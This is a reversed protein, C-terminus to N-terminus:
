WRLLNTIPINTGNSLLGGTTEFLNLRRGLQRLVSSQFIGGPMGLFGQGAWDMLVRTTNRRFRNVTVRQIGSFYKWFAEPGLRDLMQIFRSNIVGSYNIFNETIDKWLVKEDVGTAKGHFYLAARFHFDSEQTVQVIFQGLKSRRTLFATQVVKNILTNEGVVDGLKENVKKLIRGSDEQLNIDETISQYMGRDMLPKLPNDRMGALVDALDKEYKRKTSDKSSMILRELKHQEVELKKWNVLARRSLILYEISKKLPIGAYWLFKANSKINGLVTSPLKVVVNGKLSGMVEKVYQEVIRVKRKAGPSVSSMIGAETVSMEDYGLLQKLLDKRIYMSRLEKTSPGFKPFETKGAKKMKAIKADYKKRLIRTNKEIIYEKADPPLLAWIEEGETKVGFKGETFLKAGDKSKMLQRREEDSMQFEKAMVHLYMFDNEKFVGGKSSREESDKFIIDILERNNGDTMAQTHMQGFSRALLETGRTEESLYEEMEQRSFGYRFDTIHGEADYVPSLNGYSGRKNYRAIMESRLDIFKKFGDADTLEPHNLGVKQSMLLGPVSIRQLGTAGDVRAALAVNDSAFVGFRGGDIDIENSGLERVMRYGLAELKKRDRVTAIELGKDKDTPAKVQGKVLEQALGSEKWDQKTAEQVGISLTLFNDVGDSDLDILESLLEKDSADELVLLSALRDVPGIIKRYDYKVDGANSLMGFESDITVEGDIAYGIAMDTGFLRAINESNTRLGTGGAMHEAMLESQEVLFDGLYELGKVNGAIKRVEADAKKIESALKKPDKLLEQLWKADLGLAQVDARLLVSGLVKNYKNNKRSYIDIKSFGDKLQSLTGKYNQERMRDIHSRFQMTMNTITQLTKRGSVFDAMLSRVFGDETLGVQYMIKSVMVDIGKADKSMRSLQMALRLKPVTKVAWWVRRLGGAKRAVKASDEMDELLKILKENGKPDDAILGLKEFLGDVLKKMKKDTFKTAKDVANAVSQDMKGLTAGAAKQGYKDQVGAMAVVLKATEEELTKGKLKRSKLAFLMKYVTDTIVRLMQDYWTENEQKAKKRPGVDIKGIADMVSKNTTALALFEQLRRYADMRSGDSRVGEFMYDYLEQAKKKEAESYPGGEVPLLSEITVREKAIKYIERARMKLTSGLVGSMNNFIWDLSAHVVEHAMTEQNSMNLRNGASAKGRSTLLSITYAGPEPNFEGIPEMLEDVTSKTARADLTRVKKSVKSLTGVVLKLWKSHEVDVEEPRNEADLEVMKQFIDEVKGGEMDMDLFAKQIDEESMERSNLIKDSYQAHKLEAAAMERSYNGDSTAGDKFVMSSDDEFVVKVKMSHVDYEIRSVRKSHAVDKYDVWMLNTGEIDEAIYERINHERIANLAIPELESEAARPYKERLQKVVAGVDDRDLTKGMAYRTCVM